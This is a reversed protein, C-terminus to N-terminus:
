DFNIIKIKTTLHCCQIYIKIHSSEISQCKLIKSWWNLCFRSLKVEFWSFYTLTRWLVDWQLKQEGSICCLPIYLSTTVQQMVPLFNIFWGGVWECVNTRHETAAARKVLRYMDCSLSFLVSVVTWDAAKIVRWQIQQLWKGALRHSMHLRVQYLFPNRWREELYFLKWVPTQRKGTSLFSEKSALVSYILCKRIKILWFM